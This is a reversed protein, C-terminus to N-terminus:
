VFSAEMTQATRIQSVMTSSFVQAGRLFSALGLMWHFGVSYNM